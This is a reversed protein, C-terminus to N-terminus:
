ATAVPLPTERTKMAEFRPEKVQFKLGAYLKMYDEFVFKPYLQKEEEEKEVLAPAPHIVADNPTKSCCSSAVPTPTLESGKIKDSTPCPPYNRVKTGFTPGRTGHFAKKLYGKELGLNECLLDLLEEALKELKLAFEKMVEMIKAAKSDLKLKLVFSVRNLACKSISPPQEVEYRLPLQLVQIEVERRLIDLDLSLKVIFPGDAIEVGRCLIDYGYIWSKLEVVSSITDNQPEVERRIPKGTESGIEVECRLINSELCCLNLKVVFSRSTTLLYNGLELALKLKVVSSIPSLVICSVQIEVERRLIDLKQSLKVAFPGGVTEVERRLSDYVCSADMELNSKLKIVYSIWSLSHTDTLLSELKSTLKLKVTFSIPRSVAYM